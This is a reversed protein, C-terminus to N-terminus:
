KLLTVKQSVISNGSQVTIFYFGSPQISADWTFSHYGHEISQDLIVDVVQGLVNYAKISTHGSKFLYFDVNTVPNFPNPYIDSLTIESPMEVSVEGSSSAVILNTIKFDGNFSILNENEPLVFIIISENETTRYNSILSNDILEFSFDSDHSLTLQVGGILGDSLINIQNDIIELKANKADTIRGDLALNVVMVIDLVNVIGDNNLDATSYNIDQSGLAMNVLQIVDLVNVIEDGNIDGVVNNFDSNVTPFQIDDIFAADDCGTNTCDTSGGGGDKSYTWKFTHNGELVPYSVNVWPSPGSSSPQYQAVQVDDIYFTLGDYFNSGSPSYESSVRYSFSVNGDQLVDVNVEVSSEQNDEILGSGMSYLGSNSYESTLSWDADGSSNWSFVPTSEFSETLAQVSFDYTNSWNSDESDMNMTISFQHGYPANSLVSFSLSLLDIENQQLGSSSALGTIVNVYPDNTFLSVDISSSDENGLNELYITLDIEEGQNITNDPGMNIDVNSVTVYAGDPSMIMLSEDYTYANYYTVVLDVEGPVNSSSGIPIIAIGGDSYASGLLEGDRSIAALAGDVGVDVIFDQQGILIMGDHNVNLNSPSDTRLNLSPDGFLTWYNTENTGSSGQADNMHMCGNTSIGGVTKTFNNDYNDTIIANMAWQGHMPPEWSQSITSGLHAISGTPQGNNESRMWAETFCENTSNFEGVNCGVTIVFPLKGINNLSNVQSASIAAGNGWSSISGHGTYNILGVGSNISNIGGQPTGGSGDYEYQYSGYTDSILTAWLWDQFDDDTYGNMGPGQNSAIGLANNFHSTQTPNQEYDLSREVQTAIESPNNGSFRGVIVEAYSDNGSIFGYSPDSASGGVSPSPIQNIDGVLLLFTLGNEYYYNEVYAEISSSNSGIESVGVMETPIGKRNKWDVFPTMTNMFDDYCIVLMNGQDVLYDFRTNENDFNVFQHEYISKFEADIKNIVSSRQLVNKQGQGENSVRVTIDSYVRLVKTTPNYQFPYVVVTQGRFDRLIYPDRLGALKGPFFGDQAYVDSQTFLVDSPNIARTFNGKSPAIDINEIETYSSSIVEVNMLANDPIVISAFVQDLDPAGAQMISSGGETEIKYQTGWPTEVETLSYGSLRFQLDTTEINSSLTKSEFRSQALGNLGVWQSSVIFTCFIITLLTYRTSIM